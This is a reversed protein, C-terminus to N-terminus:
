ADPSAISYTWALPGKMSCARPATEGSSGPSCAPHLPRGTGSGDDVQRRARRRTPLSVAARREPRASRRRSAAREQSYRRGGGIMRGVNAPRPRASTLSISRRACRWGAPGSVRGTLRPCSNATQCSITRRGSTGSTVEGRRAPDVLGTQRDPDRGAERIGHRRRGHRRPLGRLCVAVLGGCGDRSM